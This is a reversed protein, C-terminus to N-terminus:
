RPSGGGAASSDLSAPPTPTVPQALVGDFSTSAFVRGHGTHFARLAAGVEAARRWSRGGDTSEFLSHSSAATALLRKGEADYTISVVNTAPLGALVHRWRDGNDSSRFAGERTALWLNSNSDLAVGHIKTLFSPLRASYWNVGGDLSIVVSKRTAALAVPLQAEM